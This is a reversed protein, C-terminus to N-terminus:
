GESRLHGSSHGPSTGTLWIRTILGAGKQDFITKKEGPAVIFFADGKAGQNTAGGQGKEAYLNEASAWRSHVGQPPAQYLERIGPQTSTGAGDSDQSTCGTVLASVMLISCIVARLQLGQTCM